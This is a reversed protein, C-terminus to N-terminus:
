KRAKEQQLNGSGRVGGHDVGVRSGEGVRSRAARRMRGPPPCDPAANHNEHKNGNRNQNQRNNANHLIALLARAQLTVICRIRHDITQYLMIRSVLRLSVIVEMMELPSSVFLFLFSFIHIEQVGHAGVDYGENERM